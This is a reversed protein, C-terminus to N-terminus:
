PVIETFELITERQPTKQNGNLFDEVVDDTPSKPAAGLPRGDRSVWTGNQLHYEGSVRFTAGPPILIETEDQFVSFKEIVRGARKNYFIYGLAGGFAKAITQTTSYFNPLRFTAGFKLIGAHGGFKIDNDGRYSTKGRAKPLKGLGSIALKAIASYKEWNATPQDVRFDRFVANMEKYVDSTYIRIAAVENYTLETKDPKNRGKKKSAATAEDAIQKTQDKATQLEAETASWERLETDDFYVSGKQVEAPSLTNAKYPKYSMIKAYDGGITDAHYALLQRQAAMMNGSKPAAREFDYLHPHKQYQEAAWGLKAATTGPSIPNLLDLYQQAQVLHRLGLEM